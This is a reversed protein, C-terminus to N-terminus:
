FFIKLKLKTKVYFTCLMMNILISVATATAGGVAGFKKILFYTMIINLFLTSLTLNKLLKEQGTMALLIGVPGAATDFFQGFCLILLVWYAEVFEFGWLLLITRGFLMVIILAMAGILSLAMTTRKLLRQLESIQGSHYLHAVKPSLVAKSIHTLFGSLLAVKLAVSYLGVQATTSLWGLMLSDISSSIIFSASVVMLPLSTKLLRKGIFNSKAKKIFIKRWYAGTAMMVVLRSTAYMLAVKTITIQIDNTYFFTLLLGVISVSLGQELFNSQWIKRFGNLGSSYLITLVQPTMVVLGIILPYTLRKEDFIHESIWPALYILLLSIIMTVFGSLFLSTFMVDGILKWNENVKGISVEKIIVQPIGLLGVIIIISVIRQALNIVGVGDAGLSRSLFMSVILGIVMGLVRVITSSSSKKIVELTHEDLKLAISKKM